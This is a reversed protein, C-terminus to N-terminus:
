RSYPRTAAKARSEVFSEAAHSIPFLAPVDLTHAGKSLEVALDITVANEYNHFHYLHMVRRNLDYINSYLTPYTGEAHTAALIRRFLDVSVEPGANQLMDRAIKYRRCPPDAMNATSQHFNTQIFFSGSKRVIANPEIAAANGSADAFMLIAPELFSRDYQEFLQVVCEVTACESMAKDALMPGYYPKGASSTAPVRDAAFGDFFLGKENMGGQPFLNEFGVYLRGYTRGDSPVFWIKTQPNNYDENNGVLTVGRATICFATCAPAPSPLLALLVVLVPRM